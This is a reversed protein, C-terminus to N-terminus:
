KGKRAKKNKQKEEPEYEYPPMRYVKPPNLFTSPYPGGACQIYGGYKNIIEELVVCAIEETKYQGLHVGKTPIAKAAYNKGADIVAKVIFEGAGSSMTTIGHCTDLNIVSKKDQALILM